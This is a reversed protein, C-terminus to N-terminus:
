RRAFIRIGDAEDRVLIDPPHRLVAATMWLDGIAGAGNIIVAVSLYVHLNDPLLYIGLMGGLTIVVMPALAVVIFEGRRFLANDATAYLIVPLKFRGLQAYKAGYRPQHGYRRIALGHLWEHLPLVLLVALWLLVVPLGEPGEMGPGRLGRVLATWVVMLAFFPVVLGLSLLNLLTLRAPDTLVLHHVEGYNEPLTKVPEAPTLMILEPASGDM